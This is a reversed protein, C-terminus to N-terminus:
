NPAISVDEGIPVATPVLQKLLRGLDEGAQSAIRTWKALEAADGSCMAEVRKDNASTALTLAEILRVRYPDTAAEAARFLLALLEPHEEILPRFVASSQVIALIDRASNSMEASITPSNM